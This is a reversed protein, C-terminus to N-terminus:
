RPTYDETWDSGDLVQLLDIIPDPKCTTAIFVSDRFKSHSASTRSTHAHIDNPLISFFQDPESCYLQQSACLVHAILPRWHVILLNVATCGHHLVSFM